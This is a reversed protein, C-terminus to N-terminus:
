QRILKIIVEDITQVHITYMNNHMKTYRNKEKQFLDSFQRAKRTLRERADM